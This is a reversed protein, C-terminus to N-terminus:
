WRGRIVDAAMQLEAISHAALHTAQVAEIKPAATAEDEDGPDDCGAGIGILLGLADRVVAPRLRLSLWDSPQILVGCVLKKGEEVM